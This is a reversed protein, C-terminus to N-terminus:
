WKMWLVTFIFIAIILAGVLINSFGYLLTNSAESNEPGDWIEKFSKIKIKFILSLPYQLLWKFLVGIFEFLYSGVFM